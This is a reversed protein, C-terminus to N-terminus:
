AGPVVVCVAGYLASWAAAKGFLLLALLAVAL